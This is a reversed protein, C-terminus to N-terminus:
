TYFEPKDLPSGYTRYKGYTEMFNDFRDPDAMYFGLTGLYSNEKKFAEVLEIPIWYYHGEMDQLIEYSNSRVVDRVFKCAQRQIALESFSGNRGLTRRYFKGEYTFELILLELSERFPNTVSDSVFLLYGVIGNKTVRYGVVDSGELYFRRKFEKIDWVENKIKM